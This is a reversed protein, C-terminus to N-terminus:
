QRPGKSGSLFRELYVGPVKLDRVTPRSVPKVEPIRLARRLRNLEDWGDDSAEWADQIATDHLWSLTTFAAMELETVM